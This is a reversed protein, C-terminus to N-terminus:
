NKENHAGSEEIEGDIEKLGFGEATVVHEEDTLILWPLYKVCWTFRIKSGDDEAIRVAFPIESNRVWENLKKRHVKSAHVCVVAVGKKELQGARKALEMVMHRSPRQNMDIFCVLISKGKAQVTNFEVGIGEFQPLPQGALKLLEEANYDDEVDDRTLKLV